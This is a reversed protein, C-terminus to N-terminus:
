RPRGPLSVVDLYDLAEGDLQLLLAPTGDVLAHQGSPLLEPTRPRGAPLAPRAAAYAAALLEAHEVRERALSVLVATAARQGALVAADREDTLREGRAEAFSLGTRVDGLELLLEAIRIEGAAVVREAADRELKVRGARARARAFLVALVVVAVAPVGALVLPAATM